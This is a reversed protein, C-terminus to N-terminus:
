AVRIDLTQIIEIVKEETFPIDPDHMFWNNFIPIGIPSSIVTGGGNIANTSQYGIYYTVGNITYESVGQGTNPATILASEPTLSFNITALWNNEIQASNRVIFIVSSGYNEKVVPSRIGNNTSVIGVNSVNANPYLTSFIISYKVFFLKSLENVSCYGKVVNDSLGNVSAYMKTVNDSFGSASGYIKKAM